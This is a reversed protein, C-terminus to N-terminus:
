FNMSCNLTPLRAALRVRPCFSMVQVTLKAQCAYMPRECILAHSPTTQVLLWLRHECQTTTMTLKGTLLLCVTIKCINTQRPFTSVVSSARCPMLFKQSVELLDINSLHPVTSCEQGLAPFCCEEKKQQNSWHCCRHVAGLGAQRSLQSSAGPCDPLCQAIACGAQGVAGCYACEQRGQTVLKDCAQRM